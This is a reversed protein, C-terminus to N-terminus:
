FSYWRKPKKLRQSWFQNKTTLKWLTMFHKVWSFRILREDSMLRVKKQKAESKPGKCYNSFTLLFFFLDICVLQFASVIFPGNILRIKFLLRFPIEFPKKTSKRIFQSSTNFHTLLKSPWRKRERYIQKKVRKRLLKCILNIFYLYLPLSILPLLFLSLFLM